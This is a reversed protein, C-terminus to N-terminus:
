KEGMRLLMERFVTAALAQSVGTPDYDPSLEVIDAGVVPCVDIADLVSIFERFSIGGPEPTGTGPLLGPDFVDLDISIYLARGKLTKEAWAAIEELPRGCAGGFYAPHERLQEWERKTGSRIGVAATSGAGIRARILNMVTAHSLKVGLYDERLDAHADFQLVFLTDGYKDAYAEIRPWTVLHEGGLMIGPASFSLCEASFERVKALCAATDGVPLELDGADHIRLDAIDRGCWPSYDESGLTADRIAPPGFRTGPRNSVTGDFPVGFVIVDAETASVLKQYFMEPM